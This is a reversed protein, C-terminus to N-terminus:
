APVEKFTATMAYSSPGNPAPTSFKPCIVLALDQGPVQWNFATVAGMSKLFAEIAFAEAASRVTFPISDWTRMDNNIGNAARQTYNDGFTTSFVKPEHQGTYGFDPTWTFLSAM